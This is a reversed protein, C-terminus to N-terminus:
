RTVLLQACVNLAYIISEIQYAAMLIEEATGGAHRDGTVWQRLLAVVRSRGCPSYVLGHHGGQILVVLADGHLPYFIAVCFPFLYQWWRPQRSGLCRPRCAVSQLTSSYHIRPATHLDCASDARCCGPGHEAGACQSSDPQNHTFDQRRHM